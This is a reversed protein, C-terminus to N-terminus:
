SLISPEEDSPSLIKQYISLSRICRWNWSEDDEITLVKRSHMRAIELLTSQSRCVNTPIISNVSLDFPISKKLSNKSVTVLETKVHLQKQAHTKAQVSFPVLALIFAVVLM